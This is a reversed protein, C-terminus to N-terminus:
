AVWGGLVYVAILISLVGGFIVLVTRDVGPREGLRALVLFLPIDALMFRMNSGLAYWNHSPTILVMALVAWAYGSYLARLRRTCVVTLAILALTFALDVLAHSQFYNPHLGKEFAAHVARAIGVWPWTLERKWYTYQEAGTVVQVTGFQRYLYLWFAGLAAFPAIVALSPLVLRWPHREPLRTRVQQVLTVLIPLALLVGFPRTLTALVALLGAVLWNRKQLALLVGASLLLFLSEPYAAALFFSSPFLALYLLARRAVPRGYEREALVRVLGFGGLGCVNSIALGAYLASGGFLPALMRELLAFLPYYAVYVPSSYGQQAIHVYFGADWSLLPSIFASWTVPSANAANARLLTLALYSVVLYVLHQAIWALSADRWASRDGLVPTTPGSTRSVAVVASPPQVVEIAVPEM